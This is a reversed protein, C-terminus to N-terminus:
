FLVPRIKAPNKGTQPSFHVPRIKVLGSRVFKSDPRVPGSPLFGDPELESELVIQNKALKPERITNVSFKAYINLKVIAVAEDSNIQEKIQKVILPVKM